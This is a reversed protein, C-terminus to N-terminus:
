HDMRPSHMYQSLIGVIFSLDPRTTTLYILSGVLQRYLTADFKEGDEALSFKQGQEMPSAVAKCDDMQFRKLIKSAYKSQSIFIKDKLQWVEIGLYYHFLGLDTMKFGKMLEEKVEEIMNDDNRTIILDDVYLVIIM